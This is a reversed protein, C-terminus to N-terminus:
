AMASRCVSATLSVNVDAHVWIPRSVACRRSSPLMRPSAPATVGNADAPRSSLQDLSDVVLWLLDACVVKLRVTVDAQVLMLLWAKM